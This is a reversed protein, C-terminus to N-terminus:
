PDTRRSGSAVSANPGGTTGTPALGREPGPAILWEWGSLMTVLRQERVDKGVLWTPLLAIGV